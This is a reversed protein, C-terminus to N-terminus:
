MEVASGIGVFGGGDHFYAEFADQQATTLVDGATNLFLVVRFQKLHEQDFKRADSTVQVSFRHEEGLARIAAVGAATAPHQGGASKTFVLVRYQIGDSDPPLAAATTSLPAVASLGAAALGLGAVGAQLRRRLRNSRQKM